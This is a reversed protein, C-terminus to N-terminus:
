GTERVTLRAGWYRYIIGGPSTHTHLDPACGFDLL